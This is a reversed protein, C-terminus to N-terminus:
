VVPKHDIRITIESETATLREVMLVVLRQDKHELAQGMQMFEKQRDLSLLHFEQRVAENLFEIM